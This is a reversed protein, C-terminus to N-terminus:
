ESVERSLVPATLMQGANNVLIDIQHFHDETKKILQKVDEIRSIDTQVALAKGKYTENIEFAAETLKKMTRAALVVNVGKNALEKAVNKGIGRSAGTIIATKGKLKNM